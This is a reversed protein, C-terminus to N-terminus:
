HNYRLICDSARAHVNMKLSSSLHVWYLTFLKIVKWEITARSMWSNVTCNNLVPNLVNFSVNKAGKVICVM